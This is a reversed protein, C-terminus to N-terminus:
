ARSSPLSVVMVMAVLSLHRARSLRPSVNVTDLVLLTTIARLSALAEDPVLAPMHADLVFVM